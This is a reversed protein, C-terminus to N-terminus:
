DWWISWHSQNMTIAALASLSEVGQDILDNCYAYLERALSMAEDRTTPNRGIRLEVTDFTMAILQADFREKWSQFAAVHYEPPPCANWGGYKLLAPVEEWRTTPLLGIYVEPLFNGQWDTVTHLIERTSNARKPWEGVPPWDGEPESLFENLVEDETLERISGDPEMVSISPLFETPNESRRLEELFAETETAERERLKLLETPHDIMEAASLIDDKSGYSAFEIGDLLRAVSGGDGLIVPTLDSDSALIRSYEIEAKAGSVSVLEFPFQELANAVYEEESAISAELVSQQPEIEGLSVQNSKASNTSDVPNKVCSSLTAAGLALLVNRRGLM